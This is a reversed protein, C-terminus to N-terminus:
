DDDGNMGESPSEMKIELRIIENIENKNSASSSAKKQQKAKM